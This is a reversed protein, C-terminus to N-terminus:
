IQIGLILKELERGCVSCALISLMFLCMERLKVDMGKSGLVSNLVSFSPICQVVSVAVFM